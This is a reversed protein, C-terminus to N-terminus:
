TSTGAKSRGIGGGDDDSTVRRRRKQRPTPASAPKARKAARVPGEPAIFGDDDDSEPDPSDSRPSEERLSDGSIPEGVGMQALQQQTSWLLALISSLMTNTDLGPSPCNTCMPEVTGGWGVLYVPGTLGAASRHPKCERTCPWVRRWKGCACLSLCSGVGFCPIGWTDPALEAGRDPDM